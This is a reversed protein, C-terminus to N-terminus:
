RDEALRAEIAEAFFAVLADYDQGYARTVAALYGLRMRRHAGDFQYRPAPLGAQLAMLDAVWRALRGNGDRFPHILLLEGHIEAMRRTVHTLNGAVCPTHQSLLGAEFVQMNREVLCAPPWRFAGKQLEVTRYQGAWSYIQGLWVRHMERILDATIRTDPGVRNLFLEQAKLLAEFEARDMETKRTIGLLNRLVRGRSGPQFEAEPGGLAVYRLGTRMTNM